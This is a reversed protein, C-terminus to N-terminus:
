LFIIMPFIPHSRKTQPITVDEFQISKMDHLLTLLGAAKERYAIIRMRAMPVPKFGM